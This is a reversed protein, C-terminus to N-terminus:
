RSCCTSFNGRNATIQNNWSWKLFIKLDLQLSKIVNETTEGCFYFINDDAFNCIISRLNILLLDNLFIM